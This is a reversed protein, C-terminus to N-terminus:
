PYDAQELAALREPEPGASAAQDGEVALRPAELLERHTVAEGGIVHHPNLRVLLSIQPHQRVVAEGAEVGHTAGEPAIVLTVTQLAVGEVSVGGQQIPATFNPHAARTAEVPKLRPSDLIVLEDWRDPNRADLHLVAMIVLVGYSGWQERVLHLKGV